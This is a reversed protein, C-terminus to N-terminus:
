SQVNFASQLLKFFFNCYYLVKIQISSKSVFDFIARCLFIVSMLYFLLLSFVIRSYLLIFFWSVFLEVKTEVTTGFFVFVVFYNEM